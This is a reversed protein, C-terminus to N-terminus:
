CAILLPRQYDLLGALQEELQTASLVVIYVVGRRSSARIRPADLVVVEISAYTLTEETADKAFGLSLLQDLVNQRTLM